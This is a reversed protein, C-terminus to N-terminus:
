IDNRMYTDVLLAVSVVFHKERLDNIEIRYKTKNIPDLCDIAGVVIENVEVLFHNDTFDASIKVKKGIGESIFRLKETTTDVKIRTINFPKEIIEIIRNKKDGYNISTVEMHCEISKLSFLKNIKKHVIEYVMKNEQDTVEFFNGKSFIGKENNETMQLVLKSSTIHEKIVGDEMYDKIADYIQDIMRDAQALEINKGKYETPQEDPLKGEELIREIIIFDNSIRIKADYKGLIDINIAENDFDELLKMTGMDNQYKELISYINELTLGKENKIKKFGEFEDFFM